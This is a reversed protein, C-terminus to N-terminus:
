GTYQKLYFEEIKKTNSIIDYDGQVIENKTNKKQYSSLEIIKDAWMKQPIDISMFEINSTLAVETTITNSALIKLGAAQAEILTVPLGEYFSPFVFVDFMQILQPIDSRVGLMKINDLIGLSRAESRIKEKLGGDGILVLVSDQRQKLVESFIKLLFSHNKQTNFRGVHGLVLAEQIGLDKRYTDSVAPNCIFTETDIANNMTIFKAHEGFLWAGAKDGCSFCHTTYAHIKRKLQFKVLKKFLEKLNDKNFRIDSTNISEIAIHAHAIRCPIKFEEAIKLPFPSFTNLHSHVIRYESHRKFFQRLLTYYSGPFLPNIPDFKYIRGGLSEIEKDFAGEEKRHVLFDFQVKEKNIKRYYNMIMSEAGGRNMITFVQLVRIAGM